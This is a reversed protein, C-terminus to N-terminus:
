LAIMEIFEDPALLEEEETLANIIIPYYVVYKNVANKNINIKERIVKVLKKEELLEIAKVVTKNSGIGLDKQITKISPFAYNMNTNYRHNLYSYVMYATAKGKLLYFVNNSIQTFDRDLKDIRRFKIEIKKNM